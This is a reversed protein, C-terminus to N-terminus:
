LRCASASMKWTWVMPRWCSGVRINRPQTIPAGFGRLWARIKDVANLLLTLLGFKGARALHRAKRKLPKWKNTRRSSINPYTPDTKQGPMWSGRPIEPAIVTLHRISMTPLVNGYAAELTQRNVIM